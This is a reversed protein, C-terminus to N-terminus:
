LAKHLLLATLNEEKWARRLAYTLLCVGPDHENLCAVSVTKFRKAVPFLFTSKTNSLDM